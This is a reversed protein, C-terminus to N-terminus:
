YLRWSALLTPFIAENAARRRDNRRPRQLRAARRAVAARRLDASGGVPRQCLPSLLPHAVPLGRLAPRTRGRGPPFQRRRGDSGGRGARLPVELALAAYT